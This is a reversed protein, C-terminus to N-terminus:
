VGSAPLEEEAGSAPFHLVKVELSEDSAEPLDFALTVCAGEPPQLAEGEPSLMSIEYRYSAVTETTVSCNASVDSALRPNVLLVGDGDPIAEDYILDETNGDDAEESGDFSESDDPM